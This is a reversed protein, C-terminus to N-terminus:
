PSSSTIAKIHSSRSRDRVSPGFSRLIQRHHGQVHTKVSESETSAQRAQQIRNWPAGPSWSKPAFCGLWWCLMGGIELFRMSSLQWQEKTTGTNRLEFPIVQYCFGGIPSGVLNNIHRWPADQDLQLELMRQHLIIGWLWNVCRYAVKHIPSLFWRQSLSQEPRQLRYM